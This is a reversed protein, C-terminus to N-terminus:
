AGHHNSTPISSQYASGSPVVFLRSHVRIRVAYQLAGALFPSKGQTNASGLPIREPRFPALEGFMQIGAIVAPLINDRGLMTRYVALITEWVARALRGLLRRDYRFYIRLREPKAWVSHELNARRM